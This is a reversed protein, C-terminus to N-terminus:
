DVCRRFLAADFVAFYKYKATDICEDTPWFVGIQLIGEVGSVYHALLQYGEYGLKAGEGSVCTLDFWDPMSKDEIWQGKNYTIM